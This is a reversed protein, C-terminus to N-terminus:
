SVPNFPLSVRMTILGFDSKKGNKQCVWHDAPLARRPQAAAAKPDIKLLRSATSASPM